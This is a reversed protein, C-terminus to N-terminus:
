TSLVGATIVGNTITFTVKNGTGTLTIGLLGPGVIALNSPLSVGTLAGAAVGLVGASTITTGASNKIPVTALGNSVITSAAPLKFSIIVNSAITYTGSVAYSVGASSSVVQTGADSVSAQLAPLIAPPVGGAKVGCDSFFDTLAQKQTASGTREISSIAAAARRRVDHGDAVIDRLPKLLEPRM